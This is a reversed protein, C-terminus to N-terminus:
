ITFDIKLSKQFLLNKGDRPSYGKENYYLKKGFFRCTFPYARPEPTIALKIRGDYPSRPGMVDVPAYNQQILHSAIKPKRRVSGLVQALAPSTHSKLGWSTYALSPPRQGQYESELDQYQDSMYSSSGLLRMCRM